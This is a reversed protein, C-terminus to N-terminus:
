GLPRGRTEKLGLAALFALAGAAILYFAPAMADGTLSVLLVAVLPATGGGLGLGLNWSLGVATCRTHRPFMEVLVVAMPGGYVSVIIAFGLQGVLALAPDGTRLLLFLPWSFVVLCAFGGVILPRRGIRDSLAAFGLSAAMVAAMSVTNLELAVHPSFHANQQLWTSLYVFALYYAIGLVINILTARLIDGGNERFAEVVPLTPRHVPKVDRAV